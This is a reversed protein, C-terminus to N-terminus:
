RADRNAPGLIGPRSVLFDREMELRGVKRYLADVDASEEARTHKGEFVSAASDLLEKKWQTIQTPHVEFIQALEAASKDGELAELAVKAKFDPKFKNRKGQV